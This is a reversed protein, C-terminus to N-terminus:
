KAAKLEQAKKTVAAFRVPDMGSRIRLEHISWFLGSKSGTQEIKIWRAIPSNAFKILTRRDQGAGEAVPGAWAQGDMSTFVKYGKPGDTPSAEYDLEVSTLAATRGLNVSFWQGPTQEAGTTWRTNKKSDFALKVEGGGNSAKAKWEDPDLESATMDKAKEYLAVYAARASAGAQADAFLSELADFADVGLREVLANSVAKRGADDPTKRFLELLRAKPDAGPAQAMQRVGGRLAVTRLTETPLTFSKAILADMPKADPWDALARVAAEQVAPSADDLAAILPAACATDPFAAMVNALTPRVTADSRNWVAVLAASRQEAPMLKMAASVAQSASDRDADTAKSLLTLYTEAVEPRAMERLAKWTEKRVAADADTVYKSLEPVADAGGRAGVIAVLRARQQPEATAAVQVLKRSTGAARINSLASMAADRTENAALLEVLAAVQDPGGIQVLAQAAAQQVLTDPSKLLDVVTTAASKEGRQALAGLLRVQDEPAAKALASVIAEAMDAGPAEVAAVRAAAERLKLAPDSMAKAFWAPAKGTDNLILVRVAASRLSAPAKADEFVTTAVRVADKGQLANLCLALAGQRQAELPAAAAPKLLAEACAVTGIRGLATLSAAALLADASDKLPLIAPVAKECRRMGLSMVIGVKNNGEAKPLAALLADDVRPDAIGELAVRAIGSSKADTFFKAVAPVDDCFGMRQIARLILDRGSVTTEPASLVALLKKQLDALAAHDQGISTTFAELKERVVLGEKTTIEYTKIAQLDGDALAPPPTTKSLQAQSLAAAALLAAALCLRTNIWQTMM